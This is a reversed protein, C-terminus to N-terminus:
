FCDSISSRVSPGLHSSDHGSHPWKISLCHFWSFNHRTILLFKALTWSQYLRWKENNTIRHPIVGYFHVSPCSVVLNALLHVSVVRGSQCNTYRATSQHINHLEFNTLPSAFHTLYRKSPQHGPPTENFVPRSENKENKRPSYRIGKM